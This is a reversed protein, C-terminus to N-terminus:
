IKLRERVLRIKGSMTVSHIESDPRDLIKRWQKEDKLLIRLIANGNSYDYLKWDGVPALEAIKAELEDRNECNSVNLGVWRRKARLAKTLRKAM